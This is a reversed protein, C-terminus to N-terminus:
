IRRATEGAGREVMLPKLWFLQKAPIDKSNWHTHAATLVQHDSFVADKRYANCFVCLIRLNAWQHDNGPTIHDVSLKCGIGKVWYKGHTCLRSRQGETLGCIFCETDPHHILTALMGSIEESMGPYSYRFHAASHSVQGRLSKDWTRNRTKYRENKCKRCYSQLGDYKSRNPPWEGVPKVEQCRPCRKHTKLKKVPEKM